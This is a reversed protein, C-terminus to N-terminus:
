KALVRIESIGVTAQGAPVEVTVRVKVIDALEYFEAYAAAGPSIYLIEGTMESADYWADALAVNEMYYVKGASDELEIRSINLFASTEYKSDYVMVARVAKAEALSVEFTATKNIFTEQIYTDYFDPNGSKCVSLLNDNLWSLSSGDELASDDNITITADDAVNKYEAFKEIKPQPNSTAGNVVLVDMEDETGEDITVWRLEDINGHRADGMIEYSNHTHYYIFLQEGIQIFSHHGTGSVEESGEVGASLLLGNKEEPLKEFPGFVSDGVAQCVEYGNNKYDGHSYTLYYKGNHEIVAVGENINDGSDYCYEGEDNPLVTTGFNGEEFDEINWYKAALVYQAKDWDPTLWNGGFDGAMPVCYVVNLNTNFTWYLYKQGDTDVFPHCDIGTPLGSADWADTRNIKYVLNAYWEPNFYAYRMYSQPFALKYVTNEATKVAPRGDTGEGMIGIEEDTLETNPTTNIDHAYGSEKAEDSTFDVLEYPGEVDKCRAVYTAWVTKGPRVGPGSVSTQNDRPSASFFLYYWDDEDTEPDGEDFVVEPAWVGSDVANAESSGAEFQLAPGVPEMEMMDKSRYVMLGNTLTSWVYYYGDRETNDFVFPDPGPGKNSNMYFLEHNFRVTGDANYEDGSYFDVRTGASANGGACASLGMTAAMLVASLTCLIKTKKM